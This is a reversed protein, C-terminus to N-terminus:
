KVFQPAMPAASRQIARRITLAGGGNGALEFGSGDLARAIAEAASYRGVVPASRAGGLLRPDYALAVGTDAAILLLTRELPAAPLKYDLREHQGQAQAQAHIAIFPLTALVAATMSHKQM